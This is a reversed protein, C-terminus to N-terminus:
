YLFFDHHWIYKYSPSFFFSDCLWTLLFFHEYDSSFCCCCSLVFVLCQRFQFETRKRYNIRCMCFYFLIRLVQATIERGAFLFLVRVHVDHPYTILVNWKYCLWSDSNFIRRAVVIICPSLLFIPFIYLKKHINMFEVVNRICYCFCRCCFALTQSISEVYLRLLYKFVTRDRTCLNFIAKNMRKESESDSVVGGM